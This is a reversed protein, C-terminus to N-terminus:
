RALVQERANVPLTDLLQLFVANTWGFGAENSLYGFRLESGVDAGPRTVDYKEVIAGSERYGAAVVSLFKRSVRNADDHYGYRRLGEVSIYELPAWGFPADWQSGSRNISTELGGVKEFLRLNRRVRAAQQASAIGAWLPYFTTLFPYNRRSRHTFDYDLYLGAREDWMLKNVLAARMAARQKWTQAETDRGLESEIAAMDTEMMYLLSNLCVPNYHIIDINFPGFRNSPDFGSERMSRDGKYFLPTLAGSADDYYQSVDYDPVKHTRFYERVLEYHTRGNVDREAAIVEPAPGEGSDYYRSLGTETTLHPPSTWYGYYQEMAPLASELWKRDHTKEYVGLVMRTLFPPQSRTLYYTRNANLIKGYNRIEYLFNDAMNRALELLGDHFLGLQIFYSDWGYMENFRGGPVVYAFPLYLLGGEPPTAPLVRVDIKQFDAAPMQGRLDSQIRALNEGAAVYVPWRGDQEAHFKPDVAASALTRNSRTLTTWTQKIYDLIPPPTAGSVCLGAVLLGTIVRRFNKFVIASGNEAAGSRWQERAHGGRHLGVCM